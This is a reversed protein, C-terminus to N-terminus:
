KCGKAYKLTIALIPNPIEHPTNINVPYTPIGSQLKCNTTLVNNQKTHHYCHFKFLTAYKRINYSIYTFSTVTDIQTMEHKNRQEQFKRKNIM